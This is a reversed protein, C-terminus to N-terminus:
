THTFPKENKVGKKQGPQRRQETAIRRANRNNSRIPPRKQAYIYLRLLRRLRRCSLWIYLCLCLYISLYISLYIIIYIDIILFLYIAIYYSIFLLFLCLLFLVVIWAPCTAGDGRYGPRRSAPPPPVPDSMAPCLEPGYAGCCACSIYFCGAAYAGPQQKRQIRKYPREAGNQRRM